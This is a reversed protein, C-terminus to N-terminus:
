RVEGGAHFVAVLYGVGFPHEYSLVESRSGHFSLASAVVISSDAADEAALERLAPDITCIDALQGRAVLQELREDFEVARPEFGAPAGPTARHTMDGSAVLAAPGPLQDLAVAVARGFACMADPDSSRPLSVVCTPGSWGAEALFWLPVVAGHDLRGPPISWTAVDESRAATLLAWEMDADQPFEVNARPARFEALDGWLREGAWIGFARAQRPAHPSVLCLRAPESEVLRRAFERCADVTQQCDAIADGGVGPVVIPPHPLLGCVAPTFMSIVFRGCLPRIEVM